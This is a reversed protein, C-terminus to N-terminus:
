GQSNTSKTDCYYNHYQSVQILSLIEHVLLSKRGVFIKACGRCVQKTISWPAIASHTPVIDWFAREVFRYRRCVEHVCSKCEADLVIEEAM